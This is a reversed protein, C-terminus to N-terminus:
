VSSSAIHCAHYNCVLFKKPCPHQKQTGVHSYWFSSPRTCVIAALVWFTNASPAILIEGSSPLYPQDSQWNISKRRPLAYIPGISYFVCPRGPGANLHLPLSCLDLFESDVLSVSCHRRHRVVIRRVIASGVFRIHVSSCPTISLWMTALCALAHCNFPAFPLWSSLYRGLYTALPLRM